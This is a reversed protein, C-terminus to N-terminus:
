RRRAGRRGRGPRIGDEEGHIVLVPCRLASPQDRAHDGRRPGARARDRDPDGSRTELGWGVADEIQKTSHPETFVNEFFFELFGRYDRRWYHANM